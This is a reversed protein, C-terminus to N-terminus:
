RIKLATAVLNGSTQPDFPSGDMGGYFTIDGFGAAELAEEIEAMPLPRLRTTTITQKWGQSGARHLTIINFDILGDPLFDYFRLFIWEAQEERHAQPEMWRQRSQMVADFNRNQILVLGGPHLCAAFDDMAAALDQPTLLHPLSNGLCLVADFPFFPQGSFADAMEGFGATALSLPVGAAEANYRAQAIMGASLDAGAATYGQQALAIAHMATGCASDLVSAPHQVSSVRQLQQLLFPMEYALRNTWNVFRDYDSSFSDYM